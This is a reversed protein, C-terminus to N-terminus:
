ARLANGSVLLRGLRRRRIDQERGPWALLDFSGGNRAEHCRSSVRGPSFTLPRFAGLVAPGVEHDQVDCRTRDVPGIGAALGVGIPQRRVFPEKGEEVPLVGGNHGIGSRFLTTYPFLTDTRTSRTPRPIM